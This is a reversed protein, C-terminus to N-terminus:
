NDDDAQQLACLLPDNPANRYHEGILRVLEASGGATQVQRASQEAHLYNVRLGLWGGLPTDLALRTRMPISVAGLLVWAVRQAVHLRGKAVDHLLGAALLDPHDWGRARLTRYVDFAHRQAGPKMGQFLPYLAPTLLAAAEVAEAPSLGPSWAKAFQRARYAWRAPLTSPSAPAAPPM